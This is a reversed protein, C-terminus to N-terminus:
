KKAKPCSRVQRGRGPSTPKHGEVQCREKVPEESLRPSYNARHDMSAKSKLEPAVPTHFTQWRAQM